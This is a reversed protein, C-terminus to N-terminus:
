FHGFKAANERVAAFNGMQKKRWQIKQGLWCTKLVEGRKFGIIPVEPFVKRHQADPTLM